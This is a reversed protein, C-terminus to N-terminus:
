LNIGSRSETDGAMIMEIGDPLKITGTVDATRFTSNHSIDLLLQLQDAVRKKKLLICKLKLDKKAKVSGPKAIVMGREVVKRDTGRLLM